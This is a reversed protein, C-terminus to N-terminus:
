HLTENDREKKFEVIAGSVFKIISKGNKIERIYHYGEKFRFDRNIMKNLTSESIDLYKLVGDRKTLDYKPVVSNKIIYIEKELSEIKELLKPILELSSFDLLMPKEEKSM